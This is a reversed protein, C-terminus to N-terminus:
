NKPLWHPQLALSVILWRPADWFVLAMAATLSVVLILLPLNLSRKESETEPPPTYPNSDM